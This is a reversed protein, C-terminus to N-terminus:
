GAATDIDVLVGDTDVEVATLAHRNRQILERAGCDHDLSALEPGFRASFGVPHGRRQRYVPAVLERGQRLLDHLRAVVAEPVYPMDGLAILWGQADGSAQVGCAISTGMGAAANENVVLEVGETKLLRAVGNHDDAVVALTRPLVATLRRVSAIVM